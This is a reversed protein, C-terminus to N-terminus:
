KRRVQADSRFVRGALKGQALKSIFKLRYPDINHSRKRLQMTTAIFRTGSDLLRHFPISPAFAACNRSLTEVDLALALM